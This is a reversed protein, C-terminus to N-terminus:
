DPLFVTPIRYRMVPRMKSRRIVEEFGLKRFTSVLGMYVGYQPGKSEEPILPYAEVIQAGNARAHEIAAKTLLRSLGRGRYPRAVFFCVISWVPRGDVRKLTRSRDLSPFHDRPAVSCWGIPEGDLYALIGPVAGSQILREMALRNGEGYHREHERRTMRWYMCWCGRYEHGQSFLKQMDEWEHVTVPRFQVKAALRSEQDMAM